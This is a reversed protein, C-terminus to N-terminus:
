RLGGQSLPDVWDPGILSYNALGSLGLNTM